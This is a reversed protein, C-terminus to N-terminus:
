RPKESRAKQAERLLQLTNQIQAHTKYGANVILMGDYYTVSGAGEILTHMVQILERERQSSVTTQPIMKGRGGGMGYDMDGRGGGYGGVLENAHMSGGYGGGDMGMGGYAGGGMGMSQGRPRATPENPAGPQASSPVVSAILDMCDYIRVERVNEIESATTVMVVEDIVTYGVPINNNQSSVSRCVLRLVTQAPTNDLKLTVPIDHDIGISALKAWNVFLNIGSEARLTELLAELRTESFNVNVRTSLKALTEPSSNGVPALSAEPIGTTVSATEAQAHSQTPGSIGPRNEPLLYLFTLAVAAAAALAGISTQMIRRRLKHAHSVRTFQEALGAADGFEEIAAHIAQERGMGSDLLEHLRAEMHDRLEDSIAERQADSLRLLKAILRLYVEFEQESM